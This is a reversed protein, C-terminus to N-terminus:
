QSSDNIVNIYSVINRFAYPDKIPKVAAAMQQGPLDDPHQGRRNEKFNNLQIFIYWDQQDTLQPAGLSRNGEANNGHCSACFQKYQGRGLDVDGVITPVASPSRWTAILAVINDIDSDSLQSVTAGMTIGPEYNTLIGRRGERFNELQRRLYWSEMAALQPAQLARNGSGDSGHCTICYPQNGASSSFSHSKDVNGAATSGTLTTLFFSIALIRPM